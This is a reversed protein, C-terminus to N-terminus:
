CLFIVALTFFFGTSLFYGKWIHRQRFQLLQLQPRKTHRGGLRSALFTQYILRDYPNLSTISLIKAQDLRVRDSELYYRLKFDMFIIESNKDYGVDRAM